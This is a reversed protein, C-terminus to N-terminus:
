NQIEKVHAKSSVLVTEGVSNTEGRLKPNGECTGEENNM